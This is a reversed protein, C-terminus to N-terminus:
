MLIGQVAGMELAQCRLKAHWEEFAKRHGRLKDARFSCGEDLLKMQARERDSECFFRCVYMEDFSEGGGGGRQVFELIVNTVLFICAHVDM